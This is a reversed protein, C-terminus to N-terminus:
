ACEEYLTGFLRVLEPDHSNRESLYQAFLEHPSNHSREPRGPAAADLEPRVLVKVAHPFLARVEDALGVRIKEKV